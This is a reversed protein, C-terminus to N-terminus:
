VALQPNHEHRMRRLGAATQPKSRENPIAPMCSVLSFQVFRNLDGTGILNVLKGNPLALRHYPGKEILCPLMNQRIVKCYGGM